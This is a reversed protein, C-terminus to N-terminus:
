PWGRGRCRIAVLTSRTGMPSTLSIELDGRRSYSLSLQVQVHELSRISNADGACASVNKRVHMVPLIPSPALAEGAPRSTPPWASNPSLDQLRGEGQESLCAERHGSGLYCHSTYPSPLYLLLHLLAPPPPLHPSPTIPSIAPPLVATPLYACLGLQICADQPCLPASVHPHARYSHCMEEPTAYAALLSGHGGAACRGAAWLWLPPESCPSPSATMARHTRHGGGGMQGQRVEAGLAM